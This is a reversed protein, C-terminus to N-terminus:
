NAIHSYKPFRGDVCLFEFGDKAQMYSTVHYVCEHVIWFCWAYALCYIVLNYLRSKVSATLGCPRM